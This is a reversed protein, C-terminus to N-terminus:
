PAFATSTPGLRLFVTQGLAEDLGDNDTVAYV